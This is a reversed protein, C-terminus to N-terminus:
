SYNFCFYKILNRLFVRNGISQHSFHNNTRFSNKNITIIPNKIKTFKDAALLCNRRSNVVVHGCKRGNVRSQNLRSDSHHHRHYHCAKRRKAVRGSQNNCRHKQKQRQHQQQQQQERSMMMMRLRELQRMSSSSLSSSSLSSCCMMSSSSSSSSSSLLSSLVYNSENVVTVGRTRTKATPVPKPPQQMFKHIFRIWAM